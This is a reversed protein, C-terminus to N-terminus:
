PQSPVIYSATFSSVNACTADQNWSFSIADDSGFEDIIAIIASDTTWCYGFRGVSDYADCGAFRYGPYAHVYCQLYSYTDPSARTGSLTGAANGTGDTNRYVSVPTAPHKLGAHVSGAAVLFGALISLKLM